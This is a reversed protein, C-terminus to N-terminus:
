ISYRCFKGFIERQDFEDVVNDNREDLTITRDDSKEYISPNINDLEIGSM